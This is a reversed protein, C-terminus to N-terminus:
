RKKRLNRFIPGLNKKKAQLETQTRHLPYVTYGEGPLCRHGDWAQLQLTAAGRHKRQATAGCGNVWCLYISASCSAPCLSFNSRLGTTQFHWGVSDAPFSAESTFQQAVGLSASPSPRIPHWFPLSFLWSGRVPFCPRFHDFAHAEPDSMHIGM